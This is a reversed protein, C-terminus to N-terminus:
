RMAAPVLAKPPLSVWEDRWRLRDAAWWTAVGAGIVSLLANLVATIARRDNMERKTEATRDLPRPVNPFSKEPSTRTGALLAVMSYAGPELPPNSRTALAKRGDASRTWTSVASLLPYSILGTSLGSDSASLTGDEALPPPSSPAHQATRLANALKASLDEPLVPILPELAEVLHPELSVNFDAATSM